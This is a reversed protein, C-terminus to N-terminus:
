PNPCSMRRRPPGKRAGVSRRQKDVAELLKGFADSFLQLGEALLREAVEQMSIGLQKLQDMTGYASDIDETLSARPRGHDRFADFTPPPITNVTDPAILEEVYIVDRYNPNKTGTSAWL